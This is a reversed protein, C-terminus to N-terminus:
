APQAREGAPELELVVIEPRAGIRAAVQSTGLGRSVYLADGGPPADDGEYLGARYRRMDEEAFPCVGTFPLCAQGGHTHGAVAVDYPKVGPLELSMPNHVLVLTPADPPVGGFAAEPDSARARYSAMGVLVVGGPLVVHTNDLIPIRARALAERIAQEHPPAEPAAADMDHNGLVAFM